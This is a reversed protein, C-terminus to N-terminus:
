AAQRQRRRLTVIYDWTLGIREEILERNRRVEAQNSPERLEREIEEVDQLIAEARDQEEWEPETGDWEVDYFLDEDFDWAPRYGWNRARARTLDSPGEAYGVRKCLTVLAEVNPREAYRTGTVKLSTISHGTIETMQAAIWKASYGAAYLARLRLLHGEPPLRWPKAKVALIRANLDVGIKKSRGRRLAQMTSSSMPVERCIVRVGMGAARLREIHALAEDPPVFRVEGRAKALEREAKRRATVRRCADCATGNERKCWRYRPETGHPMTKGDVRPM